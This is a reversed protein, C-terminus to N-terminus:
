IERMILKAGLMEAGWQHFCQRKDGCMEAKTSVPRLVSKAFIWFQQTMIIYFGIHKRETGLLVENYALKLFQYQINIYTHTNFGTSTIDFFWNALGYNSSHISNKKLHVKEKLQVHLKLLLMITHHLLIPHLKEFKEFYIMRNGALINSFLKNFYIFVWIGYMFTHFQKWYSGETKEIQKHNWIQGEVCM